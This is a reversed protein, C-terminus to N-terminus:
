PVQVSGSPMALPLTPMVVHRAPDQLGQIREIVMQAATLGMGRPDLHLLSVDELTTTAFPVNDIIGVGLEPRGLESRVRLAGIGLLNNTAVVADPPHPLEMLSRLAAVGGDIRYDSYVLLESHATLGRSTLAHEWGQARQVATPMAEPGTVCAIRRFGRDALDDTVRRGLDANDFTVLDIDREFPQDILVISRRHSGLERVTRSPGVPSLIIGAMSEDAAVQLYHEQKQADEDTNCLVVSMGAQRIVDEVGRSLATFFPNEIDANATTTHGLTHARPRFM